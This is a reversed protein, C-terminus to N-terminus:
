IKQEGKFLRKCFGIIGQGKKDAKVERDKRVEKKGKFEKITKGETLLLQNQLGKLLINTERSREILQNIQKDKVKLQDKLFAIIDNEPRTQETRETREPKKFKTLNTRNFRYELTGRQSEIRKPKLWGKKIYRSVTRKSKKLIECAEFFTINYDAKVGGKNKM